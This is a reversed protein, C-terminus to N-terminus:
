KANQRCALSLETLTTHMDKDTDWLLQMKKISHIITSHDRGGFLRGIAPYSAHLLTRCLFMAMQRAQAIRPQRKEGMLDEPRLGCHAAVLRIIQQASVSGADASHMLVRDMDQASIDQGFLDRLAGLRQIVGILRRFGTCQQALTLMQGRHLGLRLARNERQVYRLRIDMDATHLIMVLGQELRAGIRAPWREWEAPKLCTTAAFLKGRELCHDILMPMIESLQPLLPVRQMDDVIVAKCAFLRRLAEREGLPAQAAALDDASGFFVTENGYRASLANGLARALHTKGSGTDGYLVLPNCALKGAATEKLVTLPFNNKANFIYNDLTYNEGFPAAFSAAVSVEGSESSRVPGSGAEPLNRSHARTKFNRPNRCDLKWAEGYLGCVAQSLRDLHERSLWAAFLHHPWTVVLRQELSDRALDLPDFWQRLAQEPYLGALAQRLASKDEAPATRTEPM